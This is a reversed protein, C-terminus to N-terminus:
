FTLSSEDIKDLSVDRHHKEQSWGGGQSQIAVEFVSGRIMTKIVTDLTFPGPGFCARLKVRM